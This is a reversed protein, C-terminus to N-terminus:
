NLIKKLDNWTLKSEITSWIATKFKQITAIFDHAPEPKLKILNAIVFSKNNAAM